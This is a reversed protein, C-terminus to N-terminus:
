SPPTLGLDDRRGPDTLEDVLDGSLDLCGSSLTVYAGGGAVRATLTTDQKSSTVTGSTEKDLTWGQGDLLEKVAALREAVGTNAQDVTLEAVYEAGNPSPPMGCTKWRATGSGAFSVATMSTALRPFLDTAETRIEDSRRSAQERTVDGDDSGGCGSLVGLVVLSAVIKSSRM